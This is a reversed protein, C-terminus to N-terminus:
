VSSGICYRLPPQGILLPGGAEAEQLWASASAMDADVYVRERGGTFRALLAQQASRYCAFLADLGSHQRSIGVSCSLKTCIKVLTIIEGATQETEQMNSNQLLLVWEGSRFPFVTLAGRKGGYESLVNGVAFVM